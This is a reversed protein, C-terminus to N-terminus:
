HKFYLDTPDTLHKRNCHWSEAAFEQVKRQTNNSSKAKVTPNNISAQPSNTLAIQQLHEKIKPFLSFLAKIPCKENEKMQPLYSNPNPAVTISTIM